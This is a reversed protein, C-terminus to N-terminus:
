IANENVKLSADALLRDGDLVAVSQGTIGKLYKERIGTLTPLGEQLTSTTVSCVGEISDALLGLENNGGSLVIIRNLETLGRAPLDFLRRLDLIALIRGRLNMVGAVFSPTCPLATLDKLQCVEWVFCTEIAYSESALSFALLELREAADPKAPPQALVRARAQLVQRM